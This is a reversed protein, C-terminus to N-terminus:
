RERKWVEMAMAWQRADNISSCQQVYITEFIGFKVIGGSKRKGNELIAFRMERQKERVVMGCRCRWRGERLELGQCGSGLMASWWWNRRSQGKDWRFVGLITEGNDEVVFNEESSEVESKALLNEGWKKWKIKHIKQKCIHRSKKKKKKWFFKSIVKGKALEEYISDDWYWLVSCPQWPLCHVTRWKQICPLIINRGRKTM